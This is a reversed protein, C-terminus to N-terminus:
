FQVMGQIVSKLLELRGVYSLHKGMWSQFAAELRQLLPSFQSALLRHPSLPVGLYRFPFSGELFGTDQLIQIKVRDDVGGFYISSKSANIDLGSTRGFVLLQQHLVNVSSRDGRCLLLVDNAFALHFIAHSSCKSHYHFEPNQSGIKLLRTLYEMGAIFLYPSFPDGQRM